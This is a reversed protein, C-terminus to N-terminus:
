KDEDDALLGFWASGAADDDEDEGGVDSNSSLEKAKLVEELTMKQQLLARTHQNLANTVCRLLEDPSIKRCDREYARLVFDVAVERGCLSSYYLPSSGFDDLARYAEGHDECVAELVELDGIKAAQWITVNNHSFESSCPCKCPRKVQRLIRRPALYGVLEQVSYREENANSVATPSEVLRCGLYRLAAPLEELALQVGFDCTLVEYIEHLPLSQLPEKNKNVPLLERKGRRMAHSSQLNQFHRQQLAQMLSHSVLVNKPQRNYQQLLLRRRSSEAVSQVAAANGM